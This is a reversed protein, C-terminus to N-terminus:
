MKFMWVVFNLRRFKRQHLIMFYGLQPIQFWKPGHGWAEPHPTELSHSLSLYIVPLPSLSSLLTASVFMRFCM